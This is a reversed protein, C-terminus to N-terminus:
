RSGNHRWLFPILGEAEAVAQLQRTMGYYLKDDMRQLVGHITGCENNGVIKEVMQHFEQLTRSSQSERLDFILVIPTQTALAIGITSAMVEAFSHTHHHRLHVIREGILRQECPM